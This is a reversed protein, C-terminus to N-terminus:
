SMSGKLCETAPGRSTISSARRRGIAKLAIKESDAWASIQAGCLNDLALDSPKKAVLKLVNTPSIDLADDIAELLM